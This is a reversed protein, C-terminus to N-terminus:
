VSYITPLTLHTYSVPIAALHRLMAATLRSYSIGKRWNHAAYKNAGFTLVKSLGELADFDLLDMRPKENDYKLGGEPTLDKIDHKNLTMNPQKDYRQTHSALKLVGRGLVVTKANTDNTRDASPGPQEVSIYNTGVATPAYMRKKNM